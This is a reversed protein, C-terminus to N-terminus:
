KSSNTFSFGIFVARGYDSDVRLVEQNFGYNEQRGEATLNWVSLFVGFKDNINYRMQLDLQERPADYEERYIDNFSSKLRNLQASKKNYALRAEFPGQNYFLMVNYSTDVQKFLTDLPRFYDGDPGGSTLVELEGDVFTANLSVGLGNFPKPLFDFTKVLGLELGVVEANASNLPQSTTIDIDQEDPEISGNGNLDFPGVSDVSNTYIIKKIDKYFLGASLLGAGGFYWELSADINTSERPDLEPNSRSIRGESGNNSVREGRVAIQSFSPRSLTQSAGLRLVLEERINYNFAVSPLLHNYNSANSFDGYVNDTRRRGTSEFDTYEDRLGFILRSKKTSHVAQIFAAYVGETADYDSDNDTSASRNVEFDQSNLSADNVFTNLSEVNTNIFDNAVCGALGPPCEYTVEIGSTALTPKTVGSKAKLTARGQDFERGKTRVSAGAKYGWGFSGAENNYGYDIKFTIVDEDLTRDTREDKDFSFNSLNLADGTQGGVPTFLPYSGRGATWDFNFDARTQKFRTFTEPNEFHSASYALQFWLRSRDNVQYENSLQAGWVSREFDFQGLQTTHEANTITGTTPTIFSVLEGSQRNWIKTEMRNEDDKSTTYYINLSSTWAETPQYEFKASAGYRQRDNSYWLWKREEPLAYDSTFFLKDGSANEARDSRTRVAGGNEVTEGGSYSKSPAYFLVEDGSEATAIFSDRRFYNIQFLAALKREAGFHKVFIAQADGSPKTDVYGKDRKHKGVSTTMSFFGDEYDFPSRTVFNVTGGIANADKSPTFSKVVEIRQALGAPVVDMFAERGDRDPSALIAGDISTRNFSPDLGRIIVFRGEAQDNEVAVGPIRRLAEGANFDPLRGIADESVSDSISDSQRKAEVAKSAQLRYGTVVIEEIEKAEEMESAENEQQSGEKEEAWTTMCFMVTLPVALACNLKLWKNKNMNTGRFDGISPKGKKIHSRQM